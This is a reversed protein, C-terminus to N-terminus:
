RIYFQKIFKFHDPFTLDVMDWPKKKIERLLGVAYFL